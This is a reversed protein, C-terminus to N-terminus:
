VIDRKRYLILGAAFLVVAIVSLIIVSSLSFEEIPYQPVNGFPAIRKVFEPIDFLRGFYFMLFSYGYLAWIFATFKPLVGVLLAAGGGIVLIAPLQVFAAGMITGFDPLVSKDSAIYLGYMGLFTFVASEVIAIVAYSAYMSVRSVSKSYVQELRGRKEEARLRNITNIVPISSLLAMISCMMPIFAMVYDGGANRYDGGAAELMKRITDNSEVFKDMEGVVSGYCAGLVFLSGAWIFFSKYSLKWALGFQNRLFRSAANRGKRAPIIGAGVDRKANVALAIAAIVVAEAFLIVVPAFDDKYFAEVKLGLGMPSIYSFVNESMDGWARLIYSLGMAGFSFAMSGGATSFLQAALLTVAAFVFGQMGISFGYCFAGAITTGGINLAIISVATFLSIIFNLGFAYFITVTSGTLRGVPLSCLMEHRGLEEDVRTHRNVFFINMVIATIALWILCEQAMTIAQTLTETGYVPGMMAVMPPAKLSEAMTFMSEKTPFLNPYMATLGAAAVILSIIWIPSIVRERRLIFRNYKIFNAFM